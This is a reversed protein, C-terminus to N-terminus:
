SIFRIRFDEVFTSMQSVNTTSTKENVTKIMLVDHEGTIKSRKQKIFIVQYGNRHWFHYINPNLGFYVGLYVPREAPRESLPILLPPLNNMLASYEKKKERTKPKTTINTKSFEMIHEIDPIVSYYRHLLSIARSGYGARSYYPHVAIRIIRVIGM